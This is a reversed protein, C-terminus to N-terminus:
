HGELLFQRATFGAELFLNLVLFGLALRGFFEPAGTELGQFLLPHLTALGPFFAHFRLFILPGPEMGRQLFALRGPLEFLLLTELFNGM